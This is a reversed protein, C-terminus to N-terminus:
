QLRRPVVVAWQKNLTSVDGCLVSYGSSVLFDVIAKVYVREVDDVIIPVDKRFLNFNYIFNLRSNGAPGDVILLDYDKPLMEETLNYWDLFLDAKIYNSSYKDIWRLDHEVSYLVYDSCLMATTGDGSGLELITRGNPVHFKIWKIMSEKVPWAMDAEV